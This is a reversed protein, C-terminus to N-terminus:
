QDNPKVLELLKVSEAQLFFIKPKEPFGKFMDRLEREPIDQPLILLYTSEPRLEILADPLLERLIRRVQKRLANDLLGM